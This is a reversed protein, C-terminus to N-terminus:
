GCMVKTIRGDQDVHFNVREAVYDQTVITGPRIIRANQPVTVAELSQGILGEFEALMCTDPLREELNASLSSPEDARIVVDEPQEDCGILLSAAMAIVIKNRAVQM